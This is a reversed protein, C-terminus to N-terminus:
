FLDMLKIKSSQGEIVQSEKEVTYNEDACEFALINGMKLVM